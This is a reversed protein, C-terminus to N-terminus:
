KACQRKECISMIDDGRDTVAVRSAPLYTHLYTSNGSRSRRGFFGDADLRDEPRKLGPFNPPNSGIATVEHRPPSM